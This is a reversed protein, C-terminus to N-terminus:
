FRRDRDIGAAMDRTDAFQGALAQRAYELADALPQPIITGGPRRRSYSVLADLGDLAAHLYLGDTLAQEVPDSHAIKHM